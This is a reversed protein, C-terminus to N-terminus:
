PIISFLQAAIASGFRLIDLTIRDTPDNTRRCLPLHAEPYLVTDTGPDLWPYELQPTPPVIRSAVAPQATELEMIFAQVNPNKRFLVAGEPSRLMIAFFRQGIEHTRAVNNGSRAYAAKGLKEFVMQLLMCFTSGREMADALVWAARLDVRAQAM